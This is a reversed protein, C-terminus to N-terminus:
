EVLPSKNPTGPKRPYKKPTQSRKEITVIQREGADEPLDFTDVREIRGGLVGVAFRAEELEEQGKSSKLALFVGHKKVLPICLESLVTMRAVARATVVDFSTRYDENKAFTEARDHVFRVGELELAEALQNLFQIRKNLADVITVHIEPFIIKLPISPFGAGAGVDCLNLPQNFDHYFSPTISDYFHKLYVEHKETISTLNIKENWEVLMEYYKEFQQKQHESLTIGHESLQTELWEVSM